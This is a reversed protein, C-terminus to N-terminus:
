LLHHNRFPAHVNDLYLAMGRVLGPMRDALGDEVMEEEDGFWLCTADFGAQKIMELRKELPLSYGFWSFMGLPLM